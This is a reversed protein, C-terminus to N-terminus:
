AWKLPLSSRSISAMPSALGLWYTSFRTRVKEIDGPSIASDNLRALRAM